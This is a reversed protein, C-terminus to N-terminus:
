PSNQTKHRAKWAAVTLLTAIMFLPAILFSPFEPVVPDLLEIISIQVFLPEPLLVVPVCIVATIEGTQPVFGNGNALADNVITMANARSPSYNGVMNIFYWIAQQIDAMEGQKHNLIYNVMDWRQTALKGPPNTSSYLVIEHIAPSRAMPAATDVCWGPYTGNAVDYGSPINSLHTEFYTETGNFVEMKILNSPLNLQSYVAHVHSITFSSGFAIAILGISVILKPNM